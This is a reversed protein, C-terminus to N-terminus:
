SKTEPRPFVMDLHEQMEELEKITGICAYAYQGDKQQWTKQFRITYKDEINLDYFQPNNKDIYPLKAKDTM